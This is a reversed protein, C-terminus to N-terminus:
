PYVGVVISLVASEYCPYGLGQLQTRVLDLEDHVGLQNYPLHRTLVTDFGRVHQCKMLVSLVECRHDGLDREGVDSTGLSEDGTRVGEEVGFHVPM